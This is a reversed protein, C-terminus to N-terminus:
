KFQDMAVNKDKMGQTAKIKWFSVLKETFICCCLLYIYSLFALIPFKIGFFFIDLCLVGFCIQSASSTAFSVKNGLKFVTDLDTSNTNIMISDTDGYIVDLNM